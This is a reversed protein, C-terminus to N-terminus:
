KLPQGFKIDHLVTSSCKGITQARSRVSIYINCFAFWIEGGEHAMIIVIKSM